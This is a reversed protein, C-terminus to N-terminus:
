VGWFIAFVAPFSLNGHFHGVFLLAFMASPGLELLRQSSQAFFALGALSVGTQQAAGSCTAPIARV